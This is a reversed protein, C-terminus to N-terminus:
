TEMLVGALALMDPTAPLHMGTEGTWDAFLDPRYGQTLAEPSASQLEVLEVSWRDFVEDPVISNDLHYYIVSHVHLCRRLRNIREMDM